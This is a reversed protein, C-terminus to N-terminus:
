SYMIPIPAIGPVGGGGGGCGEVEGVTTLDNVAGDEVEVGDADDLEVLLFKTGAVSGRVPIM